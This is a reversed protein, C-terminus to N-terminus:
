FKLRFKGDSNTKYIESWAENKQARKVFYLSLYLCFSCLQKGDGMTAQRWGVVTVEEATM